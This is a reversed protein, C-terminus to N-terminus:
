PKPTATPVLFKTFDNPIVGQIETGVVINDIVSIRDQKKFCPSPFNTSGQFGCWDNNTNWNGQFQQGTSTLVLFFQITGENDNRTWSGGLSTGSATAEIRGDTGAYTGFVRRGDQFLTMPGLGSNAQWTGYWSAVGCPSPKSQGARYGCWTLVRNWNGRWFLGSEDLWFDFSSDAGSYSMTGSLRNGQVTGNISGLGNGFSGSVQNGVQTLNMDACDLVDCFTTWSGGWAGPDPTPTDPKPTNTPTPTDTPPPPVPTDPGTSIFLSVPTSKELETDPEPETRVVLNAAIQDSAEDRVRGIELDSAVLTGEADAETLGRVDPMTVASANNLILIVVAIVALVGVIIPIIWFPFKKPPPAPAPVAITATPGETVGEDTNAVDVMRLRFTYSGAAATPPVKINVTFQEAAGIVFARENAGEVQLWTAHAEGKPVTELIARGTMPRGSANFVTYAASGQRKANLQVSNSAVTITFENSVAKEKNRAVM